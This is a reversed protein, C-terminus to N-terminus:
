DQENTEKTKFTIDIDLTELWDAIQERTWKHYDNLNIIVSELTSEMSTIPHKVIEKVGPLEDVRSDRGGYAKKAPKVLPGSFYPNNTVPPSAYYVKHLNGGDLLGDSYRMYSLDPTLMPANEYAKIWLMEITSMMVDHQYEHYIEKEVEAEVSCPHVGAYYELKITLYGFNNEKDHVTIAPPFIKSRSVPAIIDFDWSTGNPGHEVHSPKAIYGPILDDVQFDMQAEAKKRALNYIFGDDINKLAALLCSMVVAKSFNQFTKCRVTVEIDLSTVYLTHVVYNIGLMNNLPKYYQEVDYDMYETHQEYSIDVNNYMFM